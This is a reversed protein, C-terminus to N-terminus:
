EQNTQWTGVKWREDQWVLYYLIVPRGDIITLAKVHTEDVFKIDTLTAQIRSRVVVNEFYDKLTRLVIGSKQLVSSHSARDLFEPDSTRTVYDTTLYSQWGEYDQANILSTLDAIVEKVEDFTRHYLEPTVVFEKQPEESAQMSSAGSSDSPKSQPATSKPQSACALFAMAVAVHISIRWAPSM